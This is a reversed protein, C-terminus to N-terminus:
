EGALEIGLRCSYYLRCALLWLDFVADVVKLALADAGQLLSQVDNISALHKYLLVLRRLYFKSRTFLSALLEACCTLPNKFM